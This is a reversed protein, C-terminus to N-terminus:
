FFQMSFFVNNNVYTDVLSVILDDNIWKNIFLIRYELTM